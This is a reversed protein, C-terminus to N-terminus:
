LGKNEVNVKDKNFVVDVKDIIVGFPYRPFWSASQKFEDTDKFKRLQVKKGDHM